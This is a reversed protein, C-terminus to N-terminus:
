FSMPVVFPQENNDVHSYIKDDAWFPERNKRALMLFPDIGLKALVKGATTRESIHLQFEYEAYKPRTCIYCSCNMIEQTIHLLEM